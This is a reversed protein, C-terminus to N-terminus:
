EPASTALRPASTALWGADVEVAVSRQLLSISLILRQGGKTRLVVGETGALPGLGIWVREGSRYSSWPQAKVGTDVVRRIAHIEDDPIPLPRHGDGVIRIVHPATIVKGFMDAHLRCFLYGPFLARDIRKIRDSWRRYESYLPFFIEYGRSQLHCTAQRERGACVQTAFWQGSSQVLESM